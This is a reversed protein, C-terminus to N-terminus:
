SASAAQPRGGAQQTPSHIQSQSQGHSHSQRVERMFCERCVRVAKTLGYKPLPASANSCVGCFVGGCNRCHHRRRVVTFPTQCSMCRPAKGDPIWAPPSMTTTTTVGTTTAGTPTTAATGISTSLTTTTNSPLRRRSGSRTSVPSNHESNSSTSSASSPSNSGVSNNRHRQLQQQMQAQQQQQQQLQLQLERQQQQSSSTSAQDHDGLSRSRAVHSRAASSSSSSNSSSSNGSNSSQVTALDITNNRQMTAGASHRAGNTGTNTNFVNDLEPNVEEASYISQNSGASEQIVDNESARFEFLESEKTKEPIDIDEQASSMNMLFVSRLIQRLDSAFNTQLQDAVGAICVFLRHLLNETSKFKLRATTNRMALSVDDSLSSATSSDLSDETQQEGGSTTKTTTITECHEQSCRKRTSRNARHPHSHSQHNHHHHHSSSHSHSHPQNNNHQEDQAAAVAVAATPQHHHHHHSHHHHHHHHSHHRHRNSSSRTTTQESPSKITMQQNNSSPENDSSSSPLRLRQLTRRAALMAASTSPEDETHQQQQLQQQHHELQQQPQQQQDVATPNGLEDDESAVFNDTLPVQQPQLLNGLNTNSILYGSACDPILYGPACDVAAVIAKLQAEFFEDVESDSDDNLDHEDSDLIGSEDEDEEVDAHVDDDDDDEDDDDYDSWHAPSNTSTTAASSTSAISHSPTPSPAPSATPTSGASPSLISPPTRTRSSTAPTTAAANVSCSSTQQSNTTNNNRHDVLREVPKHTNTTTGTKDNNTCDSGSSSNNNNTNNNNNNSTNTTSSSNNHEPSPAEISSSGLPVKTNIDENTCLLKELQYLEQKSLNRLLDRIKILITRFPRFMESLQDGPMDMNLPGKAYVVLGAVIALRPISFMLGPDFADVMDQDLLGVKLSRQLTESFLVGIWQQMEYEHRSKVQVMASVYSLEFEAFLHDFIKLSEYLQETNSDNFDLHLTKSNPVNNRLCQDRLLVRVHGLSKTVAQALPRMEKSESERNLISSGAALCEAGFWLQGALNEQLVEEPFKARFARPDRDEGLLEEMIMNTIALVKDQNQRLRSVLRTCRDPEARGDFSDLESAVATLSRDAHYFRALLSKDDAKPKNLWKRFTDM